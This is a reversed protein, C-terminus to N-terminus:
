KKKKLGPLKAAPEKACIVSLSAQLGHCSNEQELLLTDLQRLRAADRSKTHKRAYEERAQTLRPQIIVVQRRYNTGINQLAKLMGTRGQKARRRNYWVLKGVKKGVGSELGETLITRDLYRFNKVAQSTVIEYDSVSVGRNPSANDSAKIHILSLRPPVSKDDLHIFDALEMSGDDCALWGGASDGFGDLPWSNKVWCFLSNEEGIVALDLTSPKEKTVDYGSFDVWSFDQFPMDRHRIKLVHGEAITHGSEYWIKVWTPRNCVTVARALAEETEDSAARSEMRWKVNEPDAFDIQFEITGLLTGNLTVEATFDANSKKLIRFHSYYAWEEMEERARENTEDSLLEPPIIGLDFADAIKTTDISSVAVVPIPADVPTITAELHKLIANVPNAFEDWTRSSGVWIRSGRPSTGVAVIDEDFDSACRAATFYYTQDGLPDLADQLEIGSLIKNDAKISTRAHAGSLWLTRAAGKIFAANLLGPPIRHLLSLGKTGTKGFQKVIGSRWRTDSLYIALHRNRRCVLILHNIQDVVNRNLTWPAPTEESYHLYGVALERANIESVKSILTRPGDEGLSLLERLDTLLNDVVGKVPASSQVRALLLSKYPKLESLKKIV